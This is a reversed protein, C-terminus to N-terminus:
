LAEELSLVSKGLSKPDIQQMNEVTLNQEQKHLEQAHHDIDKDKM